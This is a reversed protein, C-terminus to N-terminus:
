TGSTPPKLGQSVCSSSYAGTTSASLNTASGVLEGSQHNDETNRANKSCRVGQYNGPHMEHRKVRNQAGMLFRHKRKQAVQLLVKDNGWILFTGQNGAGTEVCEQLTRQLLTLDGYQCAQGKGQWMLLHLVSM